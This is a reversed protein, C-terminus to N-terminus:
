NGEKRIGTISYEVWEAINTAHDAIRELYKAVMVLDLAREGHKGKDKSLYKILQKKNELFLRDVVDDAEIVQRSLAIDQNVYAKVSDKVMQSAAVAMETLSEVPVPVEGSFNESIVIEAIDSTQDGIREMDTIMKLAASVQRLDRAVPQQELLMKMCLAEIDKEMSDIAQDAKRIKKAQEADGNKIAKTAKNIAVECLEGMQTLQTKLEELQRDLGKRM